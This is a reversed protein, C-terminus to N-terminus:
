EDGIVLLGLGFIIGAALPTIMKMVNHNM